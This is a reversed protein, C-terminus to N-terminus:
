VYVKQAGNLLADGPTRARDIKYPPFAGTTSRLDALPFLAGLEKERREHLLDANGVSRQIVSDTTM